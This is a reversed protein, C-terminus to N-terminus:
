APGDVTRVSTVPADDGELPPAANTARGIESAKVHAEVRWVLLPLIAALGLSVLAVDHMGELKGGPLETLMAAVMFAAFMVLIPVVPVEPVFGTLLVAAFLLRVLHGDFRPM